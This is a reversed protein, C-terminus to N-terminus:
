GARSARNVTFKQPRHAKEAVASMIKRVRAAGAM